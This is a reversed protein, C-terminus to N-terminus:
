ASALERLSEPLADVDIEFKDAKAARLEGQRTEIAADIQAIVTADAGAASKAARLAKLNKLMKDGAGARSGPNKAEYKAGGNLRVDKRFWNNVLSSTYSKLDAESYETKLEVTGSKFGELVTNVVNERVEKHTKVIEGIPRDFVIKSEKLVSMTASFVAEKQTMSGM